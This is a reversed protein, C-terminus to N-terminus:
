FIGILKEMRVILHFGVILSTVTVVGITIKMPGDAQHFYLASKLMYYILQMYCYILYYLALATVMVSLQLFQVVETLVLWSKSCGQTKDADILEISQEPPVECRHAKSAHKCYASVCSATATACTVPTPPPASPFRHLVERLKDSTRLCGCRRRWQETEHKCGTANFVSDKKANLAEM